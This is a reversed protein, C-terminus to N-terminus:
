QGTGSLKIYQTGAPDSTKVVVYGTRAGAATPTFRVAITCNAGSDVTSTCNSKAAFDGTAGIPLTVTLPDSGVETLHIYEPASTTGVAQVAFTLSRPTLNVALTPFFALDATNNLGGSGPPVFADVFVGTTANFRLVQNGASDGVYLNGDPSFLLSQPIVLGGTGNPVFTDILTGTQGDFRVVGTHDYGVYLNGDPGFAVPVPEGSATGQPVFIDILAGTTGDYRIVKQEDALYLNGDPGFVLGQPALPSGGSAFVDIFAGTKGNYRLVAKSSYGAVYLNGDSGFIISAPAALGGSGSPVFTSLFAGTVGSYALIDSNPANNSSFVTANPGFALGIGQFLGGSGSTVFAGKFAGTAGDYRLISNSGYSNVLLDPPAAWTSAPLFLLVALKVTQGKALFRHPSNM